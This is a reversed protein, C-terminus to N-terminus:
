FLQPRSQIDDAHTATCLLASSIYFEFTCGFPLFFLDHRPEWFAVMAAQAFLSLRARPAHM